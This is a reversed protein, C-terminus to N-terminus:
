RAILGIKFERETKSIKEGTEEDLVLNALQETPPETSAAADTSAM